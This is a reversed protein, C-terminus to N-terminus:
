LSSLKNYAKKAEEFNQAAIKEEEEADQLQEKLIAEAQLCKLYENVPTIAQLIEGQTKKPKFFLLIIDRASKFFQWHYQKRKQTVENLRVEITNRENKCVSYAKQFEQMSIQVEQKMKQIDNEYKQLVKVAM